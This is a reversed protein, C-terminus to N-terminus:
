TRAQAPRLARMGRWLAWATGAAVLALGAAGAILERNEQLARVLEVPVPVFPLTRRRGADAGAMIRPILAIPPEVEHDAIAALSARLKEYRAAEASCAACTALHESRAAFTASDLEDSSAPLYPIMQSCNM